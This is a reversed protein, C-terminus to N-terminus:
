LIFRKIQESIEETSLPEGYKEWDFVLAEYMRCLLFATLEKNSVKILNAQEAKELWQAIFSMFECTFDELANKSAETAYQAAEQELKSLLVHDKRFQLCGYITRHLKDHFTGESEMADNIIKSMEENVNHVIAKLIDEKTEFFLYIAGKSIGATKAIQDVTTGKYGFLSFVQKASNLIKLRREDVYIEEMMIDELSGFIFLPLMQQFSYEEELHHKQILIDNM